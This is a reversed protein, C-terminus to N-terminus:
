KKYQGDADVEKPTLKDGRSYYHTHLLEHAVHSLPEGAFDNYFAQIETGQLQNLKMHGLFPRIYFHFMCNYSDITGRKVTSEKFNRIWCNYWEEVTYERKTANELVSNKGSMLNTFKKTSM